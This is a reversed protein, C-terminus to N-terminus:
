EVNGSGGCQECRVSGIRGRVVGTGKCLRCHAGTLARGMAEKVAAKASLVARMTEDTGGADPHAAKAAEKFARQLSLEDAPVQPLGLIVLATATEM